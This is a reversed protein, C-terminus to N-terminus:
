PRRAQELRWRAAERHSDDFLDAWREQLAAHEVTLDVRGM